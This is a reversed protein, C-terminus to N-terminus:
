LRQNEHRKPDSKLGRGLDKLMADLHDMKGCLGYELLYDEEVFEMSKRGVPGNDQEIRSAFEQLTEGPGKHYGYHGLLQVFREGPSRQRDRLRGRLLIIVFILGAIVAYPLTKKLFDGARGFEVKVGGTRLSRFLSTTRRALDRQRGMDYDLVWYYWRLRLFDIFESVSEKLANSGASLVAPTPDFTVWGRGEIWTEVWTHADSQRVLYYQGIENWVGGLYGGVIRSPIGISRLMLVMSSAFYECHGRKGDFLFYLVPDGRAEGPSLDYTYGTKLFSEVAGATQLNTKKVLKGVLPLLAQRLGGPLNLYDDPPLDAPFDILDYAAVRYLHRKILSLPVRMTYGSVPFIKSDKSVARYPLGLTLLYESGNPELLIEYQVSDAWLRPTEVRKGYLKKWVGDEYTDYVIGRWLPKQTRLGRLW